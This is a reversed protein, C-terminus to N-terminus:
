SSSAMSLLRLAVPHGWGTLISIIGHQLLSASDLGIAVVPILLSLNTNGTADIQLPQESVAIQRVHSPYEATNLFCEYSASLNSGSM